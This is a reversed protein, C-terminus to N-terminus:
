SIRSNSRSQRTIRLIIYMVISIAIFLSAGGLWWLRLSGILNLVAGEFHDVMDPGNPVSEGIIFGLLGTVILAALVNVLGASLLVNAIIKTGRRKTDSLLLIGVALIIGIVPLIYVLSIFYPYASRADTLYSKLSSERMGVLNAVEIHDNAVLALNMIGNRAHEAQSTAGLPVCTAQLLSEISTSPIMFETCRPLNEFKQEVYSAVNDAFRIQVESISISLELSSANGHIYAYVNDVLQDSSTKVYSPSIANDLASVIGKDSLVAPSLRSNESILNSKALTEYTNSKDLSAKVAEPSNVTAQLSIVIPTVFLVILLLFVAIGKSISRLNNM